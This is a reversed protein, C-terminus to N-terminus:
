LRRERTRACGSAVKTPNSIEQLLPSNAGAATRQPPKVDDELLLAKRGAFPLAVIHHPGAALPNALKLGAQESPYRLRSRDYRKRNHTTWM